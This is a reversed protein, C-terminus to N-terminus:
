SYTQYFVPAYRSRFVVADSANNNKYSPRFYRAKVPVTFANSRDLLAGANGSTFIAVPLGNLQTQQADPWNSNDESWEVKIIADYGDSSGGSVAVIMAIDSPVLSSTGDQLDKNNSSPSQTQAAVGLGGTALSTGDIDAWTLTKYGADTTAM